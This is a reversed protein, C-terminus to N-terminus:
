RRGEQRLVYYIDVENEGRRGTFAITKGDPSWVPDADNDPHRSLNFPPRSGDVPVIYIDRNFDKDSQRLRAVTRRAVLRVGPPGVVRRHGQRGQGQPGDGLPRRAGQRLRGELRRAVVEPRVRGRCRPHHTGNKFASNQWWFAGPEAREVRYIDSQGGQDSVLLLADGEPSFVPDREEEPTNTVQKPELLETDMVWLDGGAIFAIELGDKSFAM